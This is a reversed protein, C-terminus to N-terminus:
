RIILKERFRDEETQLDIFYVGKAWNSADLTRSYEGANMRDSEELLVKGSIDTVKFNLDSDSGNVMLSFKGESPNPYIRLETQNEEWIPASVSQSVRFFWVDSWDGAAGADIARVRWFYLKGRELGEALFETDAQDPDMGLSSTKGTKLISTFTNDESLQYEYEDADPHSKWDLNVDFRDVTVGSEPSQLAPKSDWTVDIEFDDLYLNNGGGSIFTFRFQIGETLMRPLMARSEASWDNATPIFETNPVANTTSLNGSGVNWFNDWTEGCDTSYSIILRDGDGLNKEAFAYNFKLNADTYPSLDYTATYLYDTEGSSANYNNLEIANSGNAAHPSLQWTVGDEVEEQAIWYASPFEGDEFDGNVDNFYGRQPSVLIFDDRNKNRIETGNSVSLRASYLGPNRYVVTPNAVGPTEPEAGPLTWSWLNQGYFSLDQYNVEEGACIVKRDAEFDASYLIGVGTNILNSESSLSILRNFQSMVSTMVDIQGKSFMNQCDDYSMYNEIQDPLDSDLSITDGSSTIDLGRNDNSCTNQNFNCDWSPSNVPPTDCIRDGSSSCDSGCSSQFTHYLGLCHGMEHTLTRGDARSTGIRGFQDHRMVLGYTTWSGGGPFQAYGLVTGGGGSSSRISNVVWMNFYRRSDWYSVGKVNNRVMYTNNPDSIRVVGDTPNGQPDLKALRFEFPAAGAINKFESRTEDADDNLRRYDENLLAIADQIQELSINGVGNDHIVHVVVPIVFPDEVGNRAASKHDRHEYVKQMQEVFHQRAEPHKEFYEETFQDTGCWAPTKDFYILDQANLSLSFAALLSLYLLKKM